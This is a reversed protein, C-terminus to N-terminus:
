EVAEIAAQRESLAECSEGDSDAVSRGIGAHPIMGNVLELYREGVREWDFALASKSAASGLVDRKCSDITLERIAVSLGLADRPSDILLGNEGHKIASSAGVNRSVIVPLGSAMAETVVQGWPEYHSVCVFLDCGKYFAPMDDVPGLLHIRDAFGGSRIEESYPGGEYAGAVALHINSPLSKMVDILVDLNKRRTKLGGCFGIILSGYPLDTRWSPSSTTKTFRRTDLGNPIVTIKQADVGAFKIL